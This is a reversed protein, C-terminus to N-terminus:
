SRDCALRAGALRVGHARRKTGAGCVVADDGVDHGGQELKHALHAGSMAHRRVSYQSLICTRVRNRQCIAQVNDHLCDRTPMMRTVGM